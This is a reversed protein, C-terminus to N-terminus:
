EGRSPNQDVLAGPLLAAGHPVAAGPSILYIYIYIYIYM